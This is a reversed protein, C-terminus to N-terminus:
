FQTFWQLLFDITIVILKFDSMQYFKQIIYFTLVTKQKNDLMFCKYHYTVFDKLLSNTFITDIGKLLTMLM